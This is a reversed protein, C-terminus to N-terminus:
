SGTAPEIQGALLGRELQAEITDRAYNSMRSPKCRVSRADPLTEIYHPQVNAPGPTRPKPAFVEKNKLLFKRLRIRMAPDLASDTDLDLENLQQEISKLPTSNVDPM